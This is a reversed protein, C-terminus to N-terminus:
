FLPMAPKSKKKSTLSNIPAVGWFDSWVFVVTLPLSDCFLAVAIGEKICKEGTGPGTILFSGSM